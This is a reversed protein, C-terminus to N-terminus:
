RVVHQGPGGLGVEDVTANQLFTCVATPSIPLLSASVAHSVRIRTRVGSLSAM